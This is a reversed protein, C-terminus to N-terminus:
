FRANKKIVDKKISDDSGQWVIKKTQQHVLSLAVIYTKISRQGETDHQTSIEGTLVYDAADEKGAEPTNTSSHKQADEVDARAARLEQGSAVVEVKDSNVFDAVMKKLIMSTNIKEGSARVVVESVKIKPNRKNEKVFRELWPRALVDSMLNNFVQKADSDNWDGSNDLVKNPQERIVTTNPGCGTAVMLTGASLAALALRPLRNMM